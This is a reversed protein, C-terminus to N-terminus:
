WQGLAEAIKAMILKGVFSLDPRVSRQHFTSRATCAPSIERDGQDKRMGTPSSARSRSTSSASRIHTTGPRSTSSSGTATSRSCAPIGITPLNATEGIARYTTKIPTKMQDTLDLLVGLILSDHDNLKHKKIFHRLIPNDILAVRRVLSVELKPANSTRDNAKGM